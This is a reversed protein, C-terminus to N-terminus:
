KLKGLELLSVGLGLWGISCNSKSECVKEFTVKADEWSKRSLYTYALRLLARYSQEHSPKQKL